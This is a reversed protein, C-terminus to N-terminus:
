EADTEKPMNRFYKDFWAWSLNNNLYDFDDRKKRAELGISVARDVQGLKRLCHVLEAAIFSDDSDKEYLETYMKEAEAFKGAKRLQLAEDKISNTEM